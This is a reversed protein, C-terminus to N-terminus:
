IASSLTDNGDADEVTMRPSGETEDDDLCCSCCCWRGDVDVDEEELGVFYEDGDGVRGGVDVLVFRRALEIDSFSGFVELLFPFCVM